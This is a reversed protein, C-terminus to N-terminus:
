SYVVYIDGNKGTSSSPTSTGYYITPINNKKWCAAESWGSVTSTTLTGPYTITLNMYNFDYSLDSVSVTDYSESKNAYLNVVGSSQTAYIGSSDWLNM